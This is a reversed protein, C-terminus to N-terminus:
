GVDVARGVRAKATQGLIVTQRSILFRGKKRLVLRRRLRGLIRGLLLTRTRAQLPITQIRMAPPVIAAIIRRGAQDTEAARADEVEAAVGAAVRNSTAERNRLNSVRSAAGRNTTPM